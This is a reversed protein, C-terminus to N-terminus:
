RGAGSSLWGLGLQVLLASTTIDYGALNSSRRERRYDVRLNAKEGLTRSLGGYWAFIRDARPEGLAVADTRYDSWQYGVGARASVEFPAPVTLVSEVATAVYFGDDEFASPNLARRVTVDLASSYGLERRLGLAATLGRYRTGGAGANPAEQVTYSVDVTGTTLFAIDGSLGLSAGHSTAEAEPRDDPRPVRAYHYTLGARLNPGLDYSLGARAGHQRYSFFAADDAVKVETFDGGVNLHTRPGVEFRVSAGTTTRRFGGLDFFYEKGPDVETAELVGKAFHENLSLSTRSGL